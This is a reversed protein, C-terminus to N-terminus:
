GIYIFLFAYDRKIEHLFINKLDRLDFACLKKECRGVVVFVERERETWTGQKWYINTNLVYKLLHM